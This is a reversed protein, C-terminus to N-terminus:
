ALAIARICVAFVSCGDGCRHGRRPLGELLQGHLGRELGQCHGCQQRAGTQGCQSGVSGGSGCCRHITAVDLFVAAHVWGLHFGHVGLATRLELGLELNRGLLFAGPVVKDSRHLGWRAIRAIARVARGQRLQTGGLPQVFHLGHAGLVHAVHVSRHLFPISRGFRKIGTQGGLLLRHKVRLMGFARTVM